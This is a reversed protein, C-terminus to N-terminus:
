QKERKKSNSELFTKVRNYQRLGKLRLNHLVTSTRCSGRSLGLRWDASRGAVLLMKGKGDSSDVPCHGHLFGRAARTPSAQLM